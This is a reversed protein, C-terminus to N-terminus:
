STSRRRRGLLVSLGVFAPAALLMGATSLGSQSPEADPDYKLCYKKAPGVIAECADGAESASRHQTPAAHHAPAAAFADGIRPLLLRPAALVTALVAVVAPLLLVTSACRRLPRTRPNRM